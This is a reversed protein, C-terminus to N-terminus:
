NRESKTSSSTRKVDNKPPLRRKPDYAIGHEWRESEIQWWVLTAKIRRIVNDHPIIQRNVM